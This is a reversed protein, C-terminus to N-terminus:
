RTDDPVPSPSPVWRPTAAAYREYDEGFRARLRPEEYSRVWTDFGLACLAAYGPVRRSGLLLAEGVLMATVGVYQPNRTWRYPGTIVLQETEYVPAPTGAARVFRIFADTVLPLGLAVLGIGVSRRALGVPRRDEDRVLRRPIWGLVTAPVTAAFALTGALARLPRSDM